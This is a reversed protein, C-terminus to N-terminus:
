PLLESEDFLQPFDSHNEPLIINNHPDCLIIEAIDKESSGSVLCLYRRSTKSSLKVKNWRYGRSFVLKQNYEWSDSESNWEYLLMSYSKYDNYYCNIYKVEKGEPITLIINEHSSAHFVSQPSEIDKPKCFVAMFCLLAVTASFIIYETPLTIDADEAEKRCMPISIYFLVGTIVMGISIVQVVSYDAYGGNSRNIMMVNWLNFYMLLSFMCYCFFYIKKKNESYAMILFLVVPYIYREHMRVSFLFMTIIIFAGTIWYRDGSNIRKLFIVASFICILPIVVTGISKFTISGLFPTDQPTWNFGLMSWFNYANVSAYPYSSMTKIYLRLIKGIGFPLFAILMVGIASLGCILNKWFIDKKVGGKFVNEYIGMLILPSFILTQPKILIGIAFAFYAPITKKESLFICMTTVALTFVSDVQGWVSSNQVIAPNFLYFATLLVATNTNRKSVYRYIIFGTVLDCIIAPFKIILLCQASLYACKFASLLAGVFYLIYIYGPPYDAFFDGSYFNSLGGEFAHQAWNYFCRLDPLFGQYNCALFVRIIFASFFLAILVCVSKKNNKINTMKINTMKKREKLCTFKDFYRWFKYCVKDPFHSTTSAIMAAQANPNIYRPRQKFEM